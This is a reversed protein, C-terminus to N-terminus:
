PGTYGEPLPRLSALFALASFARRSKKGSPQLREYRGRLHGVSRRKGQSWGIHTLNQRAAAVDVM